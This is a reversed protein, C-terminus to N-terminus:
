RNKMQAPLLPTDRLSWVSIKEDVPYNHAGPYIVWLHDLALDRAAVRMSKTVKPAENFKVEVAYRRGLHRFFLDIEALGMKM